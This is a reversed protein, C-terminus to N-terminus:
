SIARRNELATLRAACNAVDTNEIGAVDAREHFPRVDAFASSVFSMTALLSLTIATYLLQVSLPQHIAQGMHFCLGVLAATPLVLVRATVAGSLYVTPVIGFVLAAGALVVLRRDLAKPVTMGAVLAALLPIPNHILMNTIFRVIVVASTAFTEIPANPTFYAARIANGPALFVLATGVVGGIVIAPRRYLAGALVVVLGASENFGGILFALAFQLIRYDRITALLGMLVLPALYTMGGPLWYVGQWINTDLATLFAVILLLGSVRYLRWFVGTGAIILGVAGLLPAAQGFAAYLANTALQMSWRGSWSVYTHQVSGIVGYDHVDAAGCFDDAAFTATLAVVGYLLLAVTLLPAIVKPLLGSM